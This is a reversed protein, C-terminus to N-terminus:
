SQQCLLLSCFLLLCLSFAMLFGLFAAREAAWWSIHYKIENVAEDFVVSRTDYNFFLFRNRIKISTIGDSDVLFNRREEQFEIRRKHLHFQQVFKRLVAYIVGASAITSLNLPTTASWRQDHTSCWRPQPKLQQASSYLAIFIVGQIVVYIHLWKYIHGGRIAYAAHLHSIQTDLYGLIAFNIDRQLNYSDVPPIDINHRAAEEVMELYLAGDSRSNNLQDAM